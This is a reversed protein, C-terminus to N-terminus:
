VAYYIALAIAFVTVAFTLVGVLMPPLPDRSRWKGKKAQWEREVASSEETYMNMFADAQEPTLELTFQRLAETQQRLLEYYVRSDQQKASALQRHYLRALRQIRERDPLELPPAKPEVVRAPPKRLWTLTLHQIHQMTKSQAPANAVGDAADVSPAGPVEAPHDQVDLEPTV